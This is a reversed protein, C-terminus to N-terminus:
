VVVFYAYLTMRIGTTGIGNGAGARCGGVGMIVINITILFPLSGCMIYRCLGMALYELLLFAFFALANSNVAVVQLCVGLTQSLVCCGFGVLGAYHYFRVNTLRM